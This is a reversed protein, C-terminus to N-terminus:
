DRARPHVERPDTDADRHLLARRQGVDRAGLGELARQEGRARDDVVIGRDPGRAADVESSHELAEADGVRHLVLGEQPLAPVRGFREDVALRLDAHVLDALDQRDLADREDARQRLVELLDGDVRARERRLAGRRVRCPREQCEDRARRELRLEGGGTEVVLLSRMRGRSDKIAAASSQPASGAQLWSNGSPLPLSITAAWQLLQWGNWARRPAPYVASPQRVTM